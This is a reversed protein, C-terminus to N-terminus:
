LKSRNFMGEASTEKRMVRVFFFFALLCLRSQLLFKTSAHITRTLFIEDYVTILLLLIEVHVECPVM